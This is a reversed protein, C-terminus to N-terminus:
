KHLIIWIKVFLQTKVLFKILKTLKMADINWLFCFTSMLDFVPAIFGTKLFNLYRFTTTKNNFYFTIIANNQINGDFIGGGFSCLVCLKTLFITSQNFVLEYFWGLVVAESGILFTFKVEFFLHVGNHPVLSFQHHELFNKEM